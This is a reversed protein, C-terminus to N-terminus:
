PSNTYPNAQGTFWPARRGVARELMDMEADTHTTGVGADVILRGDRPENLVLKPKHHSAAILEIQTPDKMGTLEIAGYCTCFYTGDGQAQMYCGTGRIGATVTPTAITVQTGSRKGFVAGIAGTLMRLASVTFVGMPSKEIQLESRERLFFADNGVVFMVKGDTGTTVVDGTRIVARDNVREGNVRVTGSIQRISRPQAQAWLAPASAGAAVGAAGQLFGRRTIIAPAQRTILISELRNMATSRHLTHCIIRAVALPLHARGYAIAAAQAATKERVERKQYERAGELAV